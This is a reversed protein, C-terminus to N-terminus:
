VGSSESIGVRKAEERSKKTEKRTKIQWAQKAFDHSYSIDTSFAKKAADLLPKFPELSIEPAM